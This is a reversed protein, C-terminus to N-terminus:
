ANNEEGRSVNKRSECGFPCFWLTGDNILEMALTCKSCKPSLENIIQAKWLRIIEFQKKTTKTTIRLKNAPTIEFGIGQATLERFVRGGEKAIREYIEMANFKQERRSAIIKVKKHKM